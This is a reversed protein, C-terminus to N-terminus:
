RDENIIRFITALSVNYQKALKAYSLGGRQLATIKEKDARAKRVAKVDNAGGAQGIAQLQEKPITNFYGSM